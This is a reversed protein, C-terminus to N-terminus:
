GGHYLVTYSVRYSEDGAVKSKEEIWGRAEEVDRIFQQLSLSAQLQTKRVRTQELLESHHALVQCLPSPPSSIFGDKSLGVHIHQISEYLYLYYAHIYM